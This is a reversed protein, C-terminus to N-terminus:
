AVEPLAAQLHDATAVKAKALTAAMLTHHALLNIKRPLGSTAQYLAQEATADFLPVTAGALQLRHTLYAPLEDRTLPTLHYRVVVRQALAEHVAMTLRRRLETQGLLLLCLRNEADMQYNTLLRLDELVDARLHHAEDVVLVPRIRADTCLRSVETKIQRYLAGDISGRAVVHYSVVRHRTNLLMVIFVESVEDGILRQLVSAASQPTSIKDDSLCINSPRYQLTM